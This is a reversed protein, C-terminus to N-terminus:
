QEFKKSLFAVPLRHQVLVAGVAKGSANTQVTFPLLLVPATFPLLLVPPLVTLSKLMNFAKKKYRVGRSYLM